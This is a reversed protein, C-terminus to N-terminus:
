RASRISVSIYTEAFTFEPRPNGNEELRRRALPVGYGFRQVYGLVRMAEALLPNRYDTVGQGFNGETVQGYLGGANSIEIRDDFWYVRVPANTEEYSRHILANRILQQLAAAPYDPRRQERPQSDIDIATQVHLDLLEDIQGVLRPLSGTLNKEDKIPDGLETGGVRLFQLYAGPVWALPEEGLVLISGYNPHGDTLMRLSALQEDTTRNNEALVEPTIANPLYEREFFGIDLASRDAGQVPRHDFPLDRARRRESLRREQEPTARRNSTGVRVWVQGQYRVPPQDVPRIEVVIVDCQDLRKLYVEADPRPLIDGGQAWDALSRQHEDRIEFNACTGDDNLGVFIVGPQGHGALDNAFACMARRIASGQAVSPKVEVRESELARKLELLEHDAMMTSTEFNARATLAAERLM